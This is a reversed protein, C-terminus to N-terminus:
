LEATQGIGRQRAAELVYHAAALDEAAVGLSRFLTIEDASRRGPKTGNVVEGLEAAIHDPEVAGAELARLWDGAERETSARCDVFYRSRVVAATDVETADPRSAGVVNLHGGPAIWDGALVPERAATVTCVLDAGDVAARASPM